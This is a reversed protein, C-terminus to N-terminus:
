VFFTAEVDHKKLVDLVDNTYGQEYGNDFTLYIVKEGSQDLYVGNYQDMMESYVGFEPAENNNNKKYGWGYAFINLPNSFLLMLTLIFVIYFKERQTMIM